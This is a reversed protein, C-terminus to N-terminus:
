ARCVPQLRLDRLTFLGGWEGYRMPRPGTRRRPGFHGRYREFVGQLFESGGLALGDSFYRVRCRLVEHMPLRGGAEIVGRVQEATFGPRAVQGEAGEKKQGQVYLQQRYVAQARGWSVRGGGGRAAQVLRRLGERAEQGGAVAEGYGSYRYDKPDKVLGARVANLDIYAAMTVLAREKGEVLVL